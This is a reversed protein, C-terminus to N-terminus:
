NIKRKKLIHIQRNFRSPLKKEISINREKGNINSVLDKFGSDNFVGTKLFVWCLKLYELEESILSGVTVVYVNHYETKLNCMLTFVFCFLVFAEIAKGTNNGAYSTEFSWLHGSTIDTM